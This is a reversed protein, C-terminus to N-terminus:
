DPLFYAPQSLRNETNMPSVAGVSYGEAEIREFLQPVNTAVIDGLRFIGHDEARLGSHASVWQIWPELQEYHAESTTKRVGGDFMTRFGRLNLPEVYQLAVDFNVENLELLVLRKSPVTNNM